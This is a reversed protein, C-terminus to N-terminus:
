HSPSASTQPPTTQPANVPATASPPAVTAPPKSAPVNNVPPNSEPPSSAPTNNGGTEIVLRDRESRASKGADTDEKTLEVARKAQELADQYKQQQDLALALRLVVVADPNASDADIAKRLTGEADAYQARKYQITGVIALATSRLYKKYADLRDPPTGAPASLDTDITQLAHQANAVAQDMREERDLDMASTHEEQIEAVVILAEPDDKDISLVKLGAAMMKDANDAQQFSKMVGRYLVVRLNSDPFKAAFDDVAKEFEDPTQAKSKIAQYAEYEAQTKAQVQGKSAPQATAPPAQDKAPPSQAAASLLSSGAVAIIAITRKAKM